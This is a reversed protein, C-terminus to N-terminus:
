RKLLKDIKELEKDISAIRQDIDKVANVTSDGRFFAQKPKASPSAKEKTKFLQFLSVKEKALDISTEAEATEKKAEKKAEKEIEKKSEKKVEPEPVNNLLPLEPALEMNADADLEIPRYEHRTFAFTFLAVIAAIVIIGPVITSLFTSEGLGIVSGQVAVASSTINAEGNYGIMLAGLFALFLLGLTLTGSLKM